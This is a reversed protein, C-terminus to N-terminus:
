DMQHQVGDEDNVLVGSITKTLLAQSGNSPPKKVSMQEISATVSFTSFMRIALFSGSPASNPSIRMGVQLM